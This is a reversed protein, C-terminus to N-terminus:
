ENYAEKIEENEQKNVGLMYYGLQTEDVKAPDKIYASIEGNYMVVISDSLKFIEELDASVLLVACGEKKLRLLEQHIFYAAGIDIGRTPQEVIIMKAGATFERAVVVKQMNGGSLMNIETKESSCKVNYEDILKRSLQSMGRQSLLAGKSLLKNELKTVVLNDEISMTGALGLSLRDSPVYSIGLDRLQKINMGDTSQDFLIVEGDDKALLGTLIAILENQGNGEVGAIGLIEGSRVTFSINNLIPKEGSGSKSLDRVRLLPKGFDTKGKILSRSQKSGVMKESIDTESLESNMYTGVMEGQRMISIRDSLEKVERLKHSIFIITYGELKLDKLRLFLEETEQPTLVSTPEDLILITAGRYLSKMIEVKQKTGVPLDKVPIDLSETLNFLRAVQEVKEISRKKDILRKNVPEYGLTINEMISFSEVLKFHQHVMGIGLQIADQPSSFIEKEGNLFIDGKTPMELGFIIKMLTSKGAGNEGVLAHIEGENVSFNINSNAKVGNGYIKHIDRMELLPAKM